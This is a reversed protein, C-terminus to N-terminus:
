QIKMLLDIWFGSKIVTASTVCIIVPIIAKSKKRSKIISYFKVLNMWGNSCKSGSSWVALLKAM